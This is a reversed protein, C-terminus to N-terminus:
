KSSVNGIESPVRHSSCRIFNSVYPPLRSAPFTIRAVRATGPARNVPIAREIGHRRVGAQRPGSRSSEIAVQVTNLAGDEATPHQTFAALTPTTGALLHCGRFSAATTGSANAGASLALGLYPSEGFALERVSPAPPLPLM